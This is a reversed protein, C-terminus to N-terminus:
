DVLSHEQMHRLALKIWLGTPKPKSLQLRGETAQKMRFIFHIVKMKLIDLKCGAVTILALTAVHFTLHRHKDREPTHLLFRVPLDASHLGTQAVLILHWGSSLDAGQGARVLTDCPGPAGPAATRQHSAVMWGM